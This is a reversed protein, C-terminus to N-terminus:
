GVVHVHDAGSAALIDGLELYAARALSPNAFELRRALSLAIRTDRVDLHDRRAQFNDRVETLIERQWATSAKDVVEVKNILFNQDWVASSAESIDLTFRGKGGPATACALVRYTGSAGVGIVIRPNRDDVGDE